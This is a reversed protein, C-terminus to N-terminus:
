SQRWQWSPACPQPPDQDHTCSHRDMWSRISHGDENVEVPRLWATVATLTAITDDALDTRDDPWFVDIRVDDGDVTCYSFEANSSNENLHFAMGMRGTGLDIDGMQGKVWAAMGSAPQFRLHARFRDAM